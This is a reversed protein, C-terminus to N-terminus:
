GESPSQDKSGARWFGLVWVIVGGVLVGFIAGLALGLLKGDLTVHGDCPQGKPVLICRFAANLWVQILLLGGVASAIVVGSFLLLLRGRRSM